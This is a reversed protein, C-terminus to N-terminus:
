RSLRQKQIRCTDQPTKFKILQFACNCLCFVHYFLVRHSEPLNLVFGLKKNDQGSFSM